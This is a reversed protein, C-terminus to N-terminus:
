PGCITDTGFRVQAQASQEFTVASCLDTEDPWFNGVADIIFPATCAVHLPSPANTFINAGDQVATGLDASSLGPGLRLAVMSDAPQQSFTNDRLTVAQGDLNVLAPQPTLGGALLEFTNGTLTLAGAVSSLAVGGEASRFTSDLIQADGNEITLLVPADSLDTGLHILAYADESNGSLALGGSDMTVTAANLRYNTLDVAGTAHFEVSNMRLTPAADVAPGVGVIIPTQEIAEIRIREMFLGNAGLYFLPVATTNIFTTEPDDGVIAIGVAPIDLGGADHGIPALWVVEDSTATGLANALSLFCAGYDVGLEPHVLRTARLGVQSVDLGCRRACADEPDIGYVVGTEDAIVIHTGCIPDDSAGTWENGQAEVVVPVAAAEPNGIQVGVAAGSFDSNGPDDPTGLDVTLPNDADIVIAPCPLPGDDQEVAFGRVKVPAGSTIHVGAYCDGIPGVHRVHVDTLEHAGSSGMRLAAVDTRATLTVATM